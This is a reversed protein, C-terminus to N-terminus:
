RIEPVRHARPKAQGTLSEQNDNRQIPADHIIQVPNSVASNAM